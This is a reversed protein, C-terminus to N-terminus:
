LNLEYICINESKKAKIITTILGCFGVDWLRWMSLKQFIQQAKFFLFLILIIYFSTFSINFKGYLNNSLLLLCQLKKKGSRGEWNFNIIVSPVIIERLCKTYSDTKSQPLIKRLQRTQFPFFWHIIQTLLLYLHFKRVVQMSLDSNGNIRRELEGRAIIPHTKWCYEEYSVIHM